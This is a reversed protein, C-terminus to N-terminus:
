FLDRMSIGFAQAIKHINDIGVNRVGREIGSIYTRDLEAEHALREQSWDRENRLERLRDGFDRRHRPISM